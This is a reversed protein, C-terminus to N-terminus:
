LNEYMGGTDGALSYSAAALDTTSSVVKMTGEVWVAGWAEEPTLGEDNSLTVVITQNPPPPPVHICAGFTPVLLFEILLGNHYNLPAVFGALRIQEGDLEPNVAEGDLSAQMESFLDAAEPSGYDVQELRSKFKEFVDEESQGAPILDGWEIASYAGLNPQSGAAVGGDGITVPELHAPALADGRESWEDLSAGYLDSVDPAPEPLVSGQEAAAQEGAAAREGTSVAAGTGCAASILSIAVLVPLLAAAPTATQRNTM